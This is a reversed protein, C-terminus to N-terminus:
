SKTGKYSYSCDKMNPWMTQANSSWTINYFPNSGLLPTFVIVVDPGAKTQAGYFHMTWVQNSSVDESFTNIHDYTIRITDLYNKVLLCEHPLREVREVQNGLLPENYATFFEDRKFPITAYSLDDRMHGNLTKFMGWNTPVYTISPDKM